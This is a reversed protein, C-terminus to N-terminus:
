MCPVSLSPDRRFVLCLAHHLCSSDYHRFDHHARSGLIIQAIYGSDEAFCVEEFFDLLFYLVAIRSLVQIFTNVPNARVIKFSAHVVQLSKSSLCWLFTGRVELIATSQAIKLYFALEKYISEQKQGSLTFNVLHYLLLSWAGTSALNYLVLYASRLGM